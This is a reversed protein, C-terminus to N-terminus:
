TWPQATRRERRLQRAERCRRVQLGAVSLGTGLRCVGLDAVSGAAAYGAFSLGLLGM